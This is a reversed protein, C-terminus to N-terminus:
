KIIDVLTFKSPKKNLGNGYEVQLLVVISQMDGHIDFRYEKYAPYKGSGNYQTIKRLSVSKINGTISQLQINGMCYQKAQTITETDGFIHNYIGGALSIIIAIIISKKRLLSLFAPKTVVVM